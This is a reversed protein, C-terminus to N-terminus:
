SKAMKQENRPSIRRKQELSDDINRSIHHEM